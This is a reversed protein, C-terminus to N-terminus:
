SSCIVRELIDVAADMHEKGAILPPMLRVASPQPSNVLLGLEM